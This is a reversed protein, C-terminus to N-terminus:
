SDCYNYGVCRYPITQGALDPDCTPLSVNYTESCPNSKRVLEEYYEREGPNNGDFWVYGYTLRLTDNGNQLDEVYVNSGDCPVNNFSEYDDECSLWDDGSWLYNQEGDITDPISITNDENVLFLFDDVTTFAGYFNGHSYYPGVGTTIVRPEGNWEFVASPGATEQRYYASNVVTYIGSVDSSARCQGAPDEFTVIYPAIELSFDPDLGPNTVIVTYAGNNNPTGFTDILLDPTEQSVSIIADNYLVM